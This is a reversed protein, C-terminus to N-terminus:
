AAELLSLQDAHGLEVPPGLELRDDLTAVEVVLGEREGLGAYLKQCILQVVQGDDRYVVGTMGDLANRALKDADPRQSPWRPASAKILGANRGTGFDGKNRARYTRITVAIPGLLVGLKARSRAQLAAQAVAAQWAVSDKPEHVVVVPNGNPRCVISGDKRKLGHYDPSGKGKPEGFVEFGFMPTLGQADM